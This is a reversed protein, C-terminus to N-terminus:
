KRTQHAHVLNIERGVIVKGLPRRYVVEKENEINAIAQALLFGLSPDNDCLVESVSHNLLSINEKSTKDEKLYKRSSLKESNDDCPFYCLLSIDGEITNM